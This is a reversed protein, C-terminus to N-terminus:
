PFYAVSSGGLRWSFFSFFCFLFLSSQLTVEWKKVKKRKKKKDQRGQRRPPEDEQSNYIASVM